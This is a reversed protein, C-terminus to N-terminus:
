PNPDLITHTWSTLNMTEGNEVNQPNAITTVVLLNTSGDTLAVHNAQTPLAAGTVNEDALGGISNQRGSPSGASPGTVAAVVAAMLAQNAVDAFNVPEAQCITIETGVPGAAALAADMVLDNVFKAM